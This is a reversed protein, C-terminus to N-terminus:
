RAVAHLVETDGWRFPRPAQRIQPRAAASVVYPGQGISSSASPNAVGSAESAIDSAAPHPIPVPQSLSGLSSSGSAEQPLSPMLASSPPINALAVAALSPKGTATTMEPAAGAPAPATSNQLMSQSRSLGLSGISGQSPLHQVARDQTPTLDRWSTLSTPWLVEQGVQRPLQSAAFAPAASKYTPQQTGMVAAASAALNSISKRLRAPVPPSAPFTWAADSPEPTAKRVLEPAVESETEPITVEPTAEPEELSFEEEESVSKLPENSNVSVRRERQSPEKASEQRAVSHENCYPTQLSASAFCGIRVCLPTTSNALADPVGVDHPMGGQAPDRFSGGPSDMMGGCDIVPALSSASSPLNISSFWAYSAADFATQSELVASATGSAPAYLPWTCSPGLRAVVATIDDIDGDRPWRAHAKCVLSKTVLELDDGAELSSHLLAAAESVPVKEWVGDTAIILQSQSGFPLNKHVEPESLVGISHAELDGLSRAMALGPRDTGRLFVRRASLGSAATERVEGGSEVIRREDEATVYHSRTEFRVKSGEVVVIKTDGVYAVTILGAESDILAAAATSGSVWALDREEELATHALRFLCLLAESAELNQNLVLDQAYQEFINKKIFNVVVDGMVGHGDFAAVLILSENLYLVLCDDQNVWNLAHSKKGAITNSATFFRTEVPITTVSSDELSEAVLSQLAVLDDPDGFISKRLRDYENRAQQESIAETSPEPNSSQSQVTAVSTRPSRHM